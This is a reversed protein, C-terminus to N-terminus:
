RHAVSSSRQQNEHNEPQDFVSGNPLGAPEIVAGDRDACGTQQGARTYPHDDGPKHGPHGNRVV